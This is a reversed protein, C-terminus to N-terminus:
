ESSKLTVNHVIYDHANNSFYFKKAVDLLSCGSFYSTFFKGKHFWKDEYNLNLKPDIERKLNELVDILNLIKSKFYSYKYSNMLFYTDHRPNYTMLYINDEDYKIIVECGNDDRVIKRIKCELEIENKMDEDM